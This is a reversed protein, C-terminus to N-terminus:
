EHSRLQEELLLKRDIPNEQQREPVTSLTVQYFRITDAQQFDLNNQLFLSWLAELRVRRQAESGARLVQNMLSRFREPPLEPIPERENFPIIEGTTRVAEIEVVDVMPGAIWAFTPFCAIPWGLELRWAGALVVAVFLIVGVMKVAGSAYEVESRTEQSRPFSSDIINCTRSDAVHRYVWEGVHPIPWVYLIPAVPWFLPIRSTLARYAMFGTFSKTGIVAHMNTMLATTDLWGLGCVKIVNNELANLYKVRGFIDFVRLTAVTRRCLKCNGDYILYMQNRFLQRGIWDFIRNWDLFAVYCRVLSTFFIQMFVATMTHFFLGGLPALLRLRKSFLLFIFSVEFIITGTAGLKYLVPYQDLRFFPTWGGLEMWKDYMTFKLNESWAWDVGSTWLKWFGPFFYMVGMLLWVFRLPLSYVRSPGPVDTVGHDARKVAAIIADCSLTDGCRSAALITAFWLIYHYHNVKGYLQPIGLVYFSLVVTL